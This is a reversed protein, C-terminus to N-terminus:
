EEKFSAVFNLLEEPATKILKEIRKLVKELKELKEIPISNLEQILEIVKGLEPATRSVREASSLVDRILKLRKEDPLKDVAQVLRSLAPAGTKDEFKKAAEALKDILM